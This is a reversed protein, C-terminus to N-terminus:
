WLTSLLKYRVDNTAKIFTIILRDIFFHVYRAPLRGRLFYVRNPYHYMTFDKDKQIYKDNTNILALLMSTLELQYNYPPVKSSNKGLGNGKNEFVYVDAPPISHM